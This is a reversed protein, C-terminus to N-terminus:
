LVVLTLFDRGSNSKRKDVRVSIENEEDLIEIVDDLTDFVTESITTYYVMDATRFIGVNKIEGTEEDVDKCTAIATINTITMSKEFDQLPKGARSNVVDRKTFDNSQKIIERAM